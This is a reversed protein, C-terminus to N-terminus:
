ANEGGGMEAVVEERTLSASMWDFEKAPKMRGDCFATYEEETIPFLRANPEEEFVDLAGENTCVGMPCNICAGIIYYYIKPTDHEKAYERVLEGLEELTLRPTGDATFVIDELASLRKFVERGHNCEYCDRHKRCYETSVMDCVGPYGSSTLRKMQEM